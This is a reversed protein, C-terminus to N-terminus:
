RETLGMVKTVRARLLQATAPERFSATERGGPAIFAHLRNRLVPLRAEQIAVWQQEGGKTQFVSRSYIIFQTRPNRAAAYALFL